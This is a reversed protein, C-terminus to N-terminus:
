AGMNGLFTHRFAKYKLKLFVKWSFSVLALTIQTGWGTYTDCATLAEGCSLAVSRGHPPHPFFRQWTAVALTNKKGWGIHRRGCSQATCTLASSGWGGGACASRREMVHGARVAHEINPPTTAWHYHALSNDQLGPNSDTTEGPIASPRPSVETLPLLPFFNHYISRQNALFVYLSSLVNVEVM